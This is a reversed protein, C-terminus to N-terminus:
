GRNAVVLLQILRQAIRLHEYEIQHVSEGAALVVDIHGKVEILANYGSIGKIGSLENEM